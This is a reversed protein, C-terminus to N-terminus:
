SDTPFMFGNFGSSKIPRGMKLSLRDNGIYQVQVHIWSLVKSTITFITEVQCTTIQKGVNGFLIEVITANARCTPAIYFWMLAVFLITYSTVYPM